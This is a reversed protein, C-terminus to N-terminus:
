FNMDVSKKQRVRQTRAYKEKDLMSGVGDTTPDALKGLDKELGLVLLASAVVGLGVTTEGDELRKLTKRTVFMRSAMDEMTLGRKKRALQVNSGVERILTALAQPIGDKSKTNRTM